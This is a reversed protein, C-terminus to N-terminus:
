SQGSQYFAGFTIHEMADELDADADVVVAANGSLELVVKKKGAQVSRIGHAQDRHAAFLALRLHIGVVQQAGAQAHPGVADQQALQAALAKAKRRATLLPWRPEMVVTCASLGSPAMAWIASSPM